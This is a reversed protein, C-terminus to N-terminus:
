SRACSVMVRSEPDTGVGLDYRRLRRRVRHPPLANGVVPLAFTHEGVDIQLRLEWHAADREGLTAVLDGSWTLTGDDSIEVRRSPHESATRRPRRLPPRGGEQQAAVLACRVWPASEPRLKTPVAV